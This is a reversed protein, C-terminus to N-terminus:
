IPHRTTEDLDHMRTQIEYTPMCTDTCTYSRARRQIYPTACRSSRVHQIPRRVCMHTCGQMSSWLCFPLAACQQLVQGCSCVGLGQTLATCLRSAHTRLLPARKHMIYVIANHVPIFTPIRALHQCAHAHAASSQSYPIECQSSYVHAAKDECRLVYLRPRLEM